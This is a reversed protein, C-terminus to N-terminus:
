DNAEGEIYVEIDTINWASMPFDLPVVVETDDIDDYHGGVLPFGLHTLTVFLDTDGQLCGADIGGITVSTVLGTNTDLNWEVVHVGDEDCALDDDAGAQIVGGSVGLLAASGLAAAVLLSLLTGSLVLRTLM